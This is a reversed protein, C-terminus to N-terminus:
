QSQFQKYKIIEKAQRKNKAKLEQYKSNMNYSLEEKTSFRSRQCLNEELHPEKDIKQMYHVKRESSQNAKVIGKIKKNRINSPVTRKM